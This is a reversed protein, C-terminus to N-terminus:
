MRLRSWLHDNAIHGYESLTLMGERTYNEDLTLGDPIWKWKWLIVGNLGAPIDVKVLHDLLQRMWVPHNQSVGELHAHWGYETGIIPYRRVFQLVEDVHKNRADGVYEYNKTADGQPYRHNVFCINGDLALLKDIVGAQHPEKFSWSWSPTNVFIVGGYGMQRLSGITAEFHKLWVEMDVMGPENWPEFMVYPNKAIVPSRWLDALVPLGVERSRALEAETKQGLTDWLGIITYIGRASAEVCLDVIRKRQQAQELFNNPKAYASAWFGLRQVNIGLDNFKSNIAARHIYFAECPAQWESNLVYQGVGSLVFRENGRMLLNGSRRILPDGQYPAAVATVGGVMSTLTAIGASIQLFERRTTM